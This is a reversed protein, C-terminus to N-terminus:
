NNHYDHVRSKSSNKSPLVNYSVKIRNPPFHSPSIVVPHAPHSTESKQQQLQRWSFNYRSPAESPQSDSIAKHVKRSVSASSAISSLLAMGMSSKRSTGQAQTEASTYSTAITPQHMQSRSHPHIDEADVNFLGSSFPPITELPEFETCEEPLLSLHSLSAKIEAKPVGVDNLINIKETCCTDMESPEGHEDPKWQLDYQYDSKGPEHQLFYLDIIKQWALYACHVTFTIVQRQLYKQYCIDLCNNIIEERIELIINDREENEKWKSDHSSGSNSVLSNNKWGTTTTKSRNNVKKM